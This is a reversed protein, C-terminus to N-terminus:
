YLRSIKYASKIKKSMKNQFNPRKTKAIISGIVTVDYNEM